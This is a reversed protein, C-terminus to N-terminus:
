KFNRVYRRMLEYNLSRCSLNMIDKSDDMSKKIDVIVFWTEDGNFICKILSSENVLDVISNRVLKHNIEIQYPISFDLEGLSGLKMLQTHTILKKKKGYHSFAIGSRQTIKGLITKDGK